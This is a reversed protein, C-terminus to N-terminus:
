KRKKAATEPAAPATAQELDVADVAEAQHTRVLHVATEEPLDLIQGPRGSGHIPHAMTTHLRVRM